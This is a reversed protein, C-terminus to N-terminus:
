YQVAHDRLINYLFLKMQSKTIKIFINDKTKFPNDEIKYSGFGVYVPKTDINFTYQDILKINLQYSNKLFGMHNYMIILENIKLPLLYGGKIGCLKILENFFSANQIVNKFHYSTSYQTIKLENNKIYVDQNNIQDTTLALYSMIMNTHYIAYFENIWDNTNNPLQEPLELGWKNFINIWFIPQSCIKYNFKNAQCFHVLSKPDEIQLSIQHVIDEM